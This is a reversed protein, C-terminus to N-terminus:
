SCGQSPRDNGSAHNGNSISFTALSDMLEYNWKRLPRVGTRSAIHRVATGAFTIILHSKLKRKVAELGVNLHDSRPPQWTRKGMQSYRITV